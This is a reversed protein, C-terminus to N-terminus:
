QQVRLGWIKKREPMYLALNVSMLVVRYFIRRCTQLWLCIASMQFIRFNWGMFLRTPRTIYILPRTMLIGPQVSRFQPTIVPKAVPLFLSMVILKQVETNFRFSVGLSECVTQLQRCFLYSDGHQEDPYYIGGALQEAVPALLPELVAIAGPSLLRYHLKGDLDDVVQARRMKKACRYIMLTGNATHHFDIEPCDNRLMELVTRSYDGLQFNASFGRCFQEASLYRMARAGWALLEPLAAPSPRLVSHGTFLSKVADIVQGRNVWPASLSPTLLTANAFSAELAPGGRREVVTVQYGRKALFYATTMGLLGAGVVIVNM